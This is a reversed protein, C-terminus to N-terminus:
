GGGPCVKKAFGRGTAGEKEWLDGAVAISRTGSLQVSTALERLSGKKRRNWFTLIMPLNVGTLVEIKGEQLFSFALHCPVGGFLDVFLLVGAGRDVKQIAESIMRRAERADTQQDTSVSTIGDMPGVLYEAAAMLEKGILSHALIVAGVPNPLDDPFPGRPPAAM